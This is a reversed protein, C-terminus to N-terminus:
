ANEEKNKSDEETEISCKTGCLRYTQFLYLDEIYLYQCSMCKEKDIAEKEDDM